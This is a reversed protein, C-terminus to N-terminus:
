ASAAAKTAALAVAKGGGYVWVIQVPLYWDQFGTGVVFYRKLGGECAM